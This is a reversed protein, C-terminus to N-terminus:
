AAQLCVTARAEYSGPGGAHAASLWVTHMQMSALMRSHRLVDLRAQRLNTCPRRRAVVAEPRLERQQQGSLSSGPQVSQCVPGQMAMLLEWHKDSNAQHSLIREDTRFKAARQPLNSCAAVRIPQEPCIGVVSAAPRVSAALMMQQM